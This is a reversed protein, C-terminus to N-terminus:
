MWEACEMQKGPVLRNTQPRKTTASPHLQATGRRCGSKWHHRDNEGPTDTPYPKVCLRRFATPLVHPQKPDM